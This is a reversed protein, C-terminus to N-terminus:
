GKLFFLFECIEDNIEDVVMIEFYLKKTDLSEIKVKDFRNNVPHKM